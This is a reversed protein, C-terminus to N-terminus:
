AIVSIVMAFVVREWAFALFARRKATPTAQNPTPRIVAAQEDLLLLVGLEWGSPLIDPLLLPPPPPSPPLPEQAFGVTSMTNEGIYEANIGPLVACVKAMGATVASPFM